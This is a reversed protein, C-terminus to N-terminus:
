EKIYVKGSDVRRGAKFVNYIYLGGQGVTSAYTEASWPGSYIKEGRDNFVVVTCDKLDSTESLNYQQRELLTKNEVAFETEETPAIEGARRASSTAGDKVTVTAYDYAQLGKNDTVALKFVYTGPQLNTITISPSSTNSITAVPGSYKSWLYKSITGDSDSGSGNLNVSGPLTVSKDPGAYAVPPHSVTVTVFDTDIAGKNDTVTLKFVYTGSVLDSLKVSPRDEYVMNCIPGSSKTWAYKSITGDPDNGSGSLTTADVPLRILKDGGANAVPSVNTSSKVTVTVNDSKSAGDNDKVTLKFSYSGEVLGSAQLDATNTGSLTAAGGSVKSWSYSAITGDSDSATGHMSCANTPLTITKDSGASVTPAINGTQVTVKVDDTDTAGDNDTVKLRFTYTGAILASVTISPSGKGTTTATSPGSVQSWAYSTITGDGDTASGQITASNAPLIKTIDSGAHAVPAQNSPTSGKSFSLMWSLLNSENYAKDWIIHGLDPYITVKALPNPKPSCANIANIMKTTVTYNVVADADGHFAWVPLNVAAIDCAESPTNRNGCIPAIAAFTAPYANGTTWVGGGGLSLGTLYVRNEDIRLYKKCHNLVDIVYDAPWNSYCNKLQPSILIFSYQKGQKVYKPLGVNAVNLVSSQLISFDNTDPGREKVGHLSIVVPYKNSNSGYDAPLYELYGTGSTTIKVTQQALTGSFIFMLLIVLSPNLIKFKMM